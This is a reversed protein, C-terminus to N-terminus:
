PAVSRYRRVELVPGPSLVSVLPEGDPGIALRAEYWVPLDDGPPALQAWRGGEFRYVHLLLSSNGPEPAGFAAVVARGQGDWAVGALSAHPLDEFRIWDTGSWRGIWVFRRGTALEFCPVAVIPRGADDFAIFAPKGSALPEVSPLQRSGGERSFSVVRPPLPYSVVGCGSGTRVSVLGDAGM